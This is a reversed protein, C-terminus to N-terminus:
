KRELIVYSGFDAALKYSNRIYKGTLRERTEDQLRAEAEASDYHVTSLWRGLQKTPTLVLGSQSANRDALGYLRKYDESRIVVLTDPHEELYSSEPRSFESYMLDDLKYDGPCVGVRPPVDWARGYFLVPRHAREPAALFRGMAVFDAGPQTREFEISHTRTVDKESAGPPGSLTDVFGRLYSAAYLSGTPAIGILYTLSAVVILGRALGRQTDIVAMAKSPLILLFAFLLPLFAANLHWLDSRTLGSKLTVLAFLVAGLMLRDGTKLAVEPSPLLVKGITVCGITLLGFLAMSNVTWYFRFGAHGSSMMSMVDGAHEIYSPMSDGLVLATAVLWTGVAGVTILSAARISEAREGQLLMVGYMGLVGLLAALAFEHSYALHLGLVIACLINAPRSFPRHAALILVLAPVLRRMGNYNLGLLTDFLFPLLLLFVWYRQRRQPIFYQLVGMLLAFQAGEILALFGYYSVMSVGFVQSWAWVPYIMLPGYVFAFDRYPLQGCDMRDLASIFIIDEMYPGYRALFFPFYALAFLTFVALLERWALSGPRAEGVLSTSAENAPTGIHSTARLRLHQLMAFTFIVLLSWLLATWFAAETNYGDVAAASVVGTSTPVLRPIVVLLVLFGCYLVIILVSDLLRVAPSSTMRKM